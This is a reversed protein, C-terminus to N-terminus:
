KHYYFSSINVDLGMHYKKTVSVGQLGCLIAMFCNFSLPIIALICISYWIICHFGCLQMSISTVLKSVFHLANIQLDEDAWTVNGVSQWFCQFWLLMISMWDSSPFIEMISWHNSNRLHLFSCPFYVPWFFLLQFTIWIIPSDLWAYAM